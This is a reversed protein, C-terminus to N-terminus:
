KRKLDSPRPIFYTTYRGLQTPRVIVVGIPESDAAFFGRIQPSSSTKLSLTWDFSVNGVRADPVRFSTRSQSTDYDRNNITISRGSGFSIAHYNFLDRLNQRVVGDMYNGVAEEKSLRPSLIGANYKKLGDAYRVPSM